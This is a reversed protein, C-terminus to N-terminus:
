IYYDQKRDIAKQKFLEAIYMKSYNLYDTYGYNMLFRQVEFTTANMIRRYTLKGYEVMDVLRGLNLNGM